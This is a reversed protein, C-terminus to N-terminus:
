IEDGSDAVKKTGWIKQAPLSYFWEFSSERSWGFSAYSIIM